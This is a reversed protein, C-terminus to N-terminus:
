CLHEKTWKIEAEQLLRWTSESMPWFGTLKRGCDDKAEYPNAGHDLLSRVIAENQGFIAYTLAPQGSMDTIDSDAGRERLLNVMSEKAEDVAWLLAHGFPRDTRQIHKQPPRVNIDAGYDLLLGVSKRDNRQVASLLPQVWEERYESSDPIDSLCFQPSAGGQLSIEVIGIRVLEAHGQRAAMALPAYPQPRHQDLILDPEEGPAVIQLPAFDGGGDNVPMLLPTDDFRSLVDVQVGHTFLLQLVPVQAALVVAFLADTM